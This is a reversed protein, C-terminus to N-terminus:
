KKPQKSKLRKLHQEDMKRIYFILDETQETDFGNFEAYNKMSSWPIPTFSFIHTRETDLEFFANLYIELGMKLEPANAIKDPLPRKAQRAQRAIQKAM